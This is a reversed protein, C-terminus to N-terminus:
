IRLQVAQAPREVLELYQAYLGNAERRMVRSRLTEVVRVDRVQEIMASLYPEKSMPGSIKARYLGTVLVRINEGQSKLVQKIKAVTGVPVLGAYGPDEDIINKQPVLFITQDEKMAAELAFASKPRGVDFHVTQEPFIALGRLALVPMSIPAFQDNM